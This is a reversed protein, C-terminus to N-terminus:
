KKGEYFDNKELRGIMNQITVSRSTKYLQKLHYAFEWDGYSVFTIPNSKLNKDLGESLEKNELQVGKAYVFAPVQSIGYKRFLLPDIWVQAKYRKKPDDDKKLIDQMFKLTPTIKKAGGICGRIVFIVKGGAGLRDIAEAYQSWVEKPISSSMFIYIREGNGVQVDPIATKKKSNFVVKGDEYSMTGKWTELESKKSEFVGNAKKAQEMMEPTIKPQKITPLQKVTNQQLQMTATDIDYANATLAIFTSLFFFATGINLM